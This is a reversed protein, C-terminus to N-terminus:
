SGLYLFVQIFLSMNLIYIEVKCVSFTKLHLFKLIPLFNFIVLSTDEPAALYSKVTSEWGQTCFPSTENGHMEREKM